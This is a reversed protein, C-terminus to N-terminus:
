PVARVATVRVATVMNLLAEDVCYLSPRHGKNELIQGTSLAVPYATHYYLETTTITNTSDTLQKLCHTRLIESAHTLNVSLDYLSLKFSVQKLQM